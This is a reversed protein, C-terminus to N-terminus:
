KTGTFLTITSKNADDSAVGVTVQVTMDGKEAGIAGGDDIKMENVVTWGGDAFEKKHWELVDDIGADAEIAISFGNDAKMSSVIRGDHVPVESPFGDPLEGDSSATFESGDEGQITIQEGGNDIKAGTAREVAAETAKEAISQCAVLSLALSVVFLAVAIRVIIRKV